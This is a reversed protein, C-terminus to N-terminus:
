ARVYRTSPKGFQNERITDVPKATGQLAAKVSGYQAGGVKTALQNITQPRKGLAKVVAKELEGKAWRKQKQTKAM